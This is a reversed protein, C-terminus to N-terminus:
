YKQKKGIKLKMFKFNRFFLLGKGKYVNISKSKKVIEAFDFLTQRSESTMYIQPKKCVLNISKPITYIIYNSDGVLIYLEDNVVFNKYGLGILNVRSYTTYVGM